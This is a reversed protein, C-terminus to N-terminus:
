GAGHRQDFRAWYATEADLGMSRYTAAEDPTEFGRRIWAAAGWPTFGGDLWRAAVAPPLGLTMAGVLLQQARAGDYGARAAAEKLRSAGDAPDDASGDSPWDSRREHSGETREDLPTVM